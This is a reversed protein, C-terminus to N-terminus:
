LDYLHFVIREVSIFGSIDQMFTPDWRAAFGHLVTSRLLVDTAKKRMNNFSERSYLWTSVMNLDLWVSIELIFYTGWNLRKNQVVQFQLRYYFLVTYYFM